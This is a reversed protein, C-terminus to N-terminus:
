ADAARRGDVDPSLSAALRYVSAVADMRGM